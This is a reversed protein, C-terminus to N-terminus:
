LSNLYDEIESINYRGKAYQNLFKADELCDSVDDYSYDGRGESLQVLMTDIRKSLKTCAISAIFTESIAFPNM